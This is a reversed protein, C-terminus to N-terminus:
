RADGVGVAGGPGREAQDLEVGVVAPATPVYEFPMRWRTFTAWASTAGGALDDHEVLREGAEVGALAEVQDREELAEAGLAPAHDHRAVHEVLDLAEAAPHEDHGLAPQGGLAVEVGDALQHVVAGMADADAAVVGAAQGGAQEARGADDPDRRSPSSAVMTSM